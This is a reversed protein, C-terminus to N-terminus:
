DEVSNNLETTTSFNRYHFTFQMSCLCCVVSLVWGWFDYNLETTSLFPYFFFCRAKKKGGFRISEYISTLGREGEEEDAEEEGAIM